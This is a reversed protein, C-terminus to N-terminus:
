NTPWRCLPLSYQQNSAYHGDLQFLLDRLYFLATSCPLIVLLFHLSIHHGSFSIPCPFFRFHVSLELGCHVQVFNFSFPECVFSLVTLPLEGFACFVGFLCADDPWFTPELSCDLWVLLYTCNTFCCKSPLKVILPWQRSTPKMRLGGVKLLFKRDSGWNM